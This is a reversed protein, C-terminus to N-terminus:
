WIKYIYIYLTISSLFCKRGICGKVGQEESSEEQNFKFKYVGCDESQLQKIAVKLEKNKPDHYLSVMSVTYWMYKTTSEKRKGNPLVAEISHYKKNRGPYKCFFEVWGELCGNM